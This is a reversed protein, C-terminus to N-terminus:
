IYRMVTISWDILGQNYVFELGVIFILV